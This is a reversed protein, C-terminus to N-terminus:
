AAPSVVAVNSMFRTSGVPNGTSAVSVRRRFAMASSALPFRSAITPAAGTQPGPAPEALRGERTQGEGVAFSTDGTGAFTKGGPDDPKSKYPEEPAAIVSGDAQPANDGARDTFYWIGGVLLALLVLGLVVFGTVRWADVSEIEEYDSSELWPLADDDSVLGLDNGDFGPGDEDVADESADEVGDDAEPQEAQPEGAESVTGGEDSGGALQMAPQEEPAPGERPAEDAVAAEDAPASEDGNATGDAPTTEAQNHEVQSRDDGDRDGERDDRDIM